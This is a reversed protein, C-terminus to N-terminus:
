MKNRSYTRNLPVLTSRTRRPIAKQQEELSDGDGQPENHCAPDELADGSCAGQDDHMTTKLFSIRDTRCAFFILPMRQSKGLPGALRGYLDNDLADVVQCFSAAPGKKDERPLFIQLINHLASSGPM